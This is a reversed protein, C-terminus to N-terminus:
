FVFQPLKMIVEALLHDALSGCKKLMANEGLSRHLAHVNVSYGM